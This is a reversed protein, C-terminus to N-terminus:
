DQGLMLTASLKKVEDVLNQWDSEKVLYATGPLDDEGIEEKPLVSYLIIKVAKTSAAERLLRACRLGAKEPNRTVEDPAAPMDHSPTAWRVMVDLVAVDPPNAAIVEFNRRFESETTKIEVQAGLEKVLAQRIDERQMHDDELLLIRLKM